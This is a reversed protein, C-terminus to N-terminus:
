APAGGPGDDDELRENCLYEIRLLGLMGPETGIEAMAHHILGILVEDTAFARLPASTCVKRLLRM